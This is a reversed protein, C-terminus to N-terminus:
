HAVIKVLGQERGYGDFKGKTYNMIDLTLALSIHFLQFDYFSFSKLM